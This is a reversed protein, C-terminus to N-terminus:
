RGASVQCSRPLGSSAALYGSQCGQRCIKRCTIAGLFGRSTEPTSEEPFKWSTDHVTRYCVPQLKCTKHQIELTTEKIVNPQQGKKTIEPEELPFVSKNSEKKLHAISRGCRSDATKKTETRESTKANKFAKGAFIKQPESERYTSGYFKSNRSNKISYIAAQHEIPAHWKSTQPTEKSGDVAQRRGTRLANNRMRTKSEQDADRILFSQSEGRRKRFRGARTKESSKKRRKRTREKKKRREGPKELGTEEYVLLHGVASDRRGVTTTKGGKLVIRWQTHLAVTLQRPLSKTWMNKIQLRM